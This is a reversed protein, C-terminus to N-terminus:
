HFGNLSPLGELKPCDLVGRSLDASLLKLEGSAFAFLMQKISLFDPPWRDRVGGVRLTVSILMGICSGDFESVQQFAWVSLTLLLFSSAVEIINEVAIFLDNCCIRSSLYM